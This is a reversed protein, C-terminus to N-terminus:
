VCVAPLVRAPSSVAMMPGEPLVHACLACGWGDREGEGEIGGGGGQVGHPGWAGGALGHAGLDEVAAQRIDILLRDDAAIVYRYPEGPRFSSEIRTRHFYRVTQDPDVLADWVVERPAKVFIEYLHVTATSM